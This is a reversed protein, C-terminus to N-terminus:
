QEITEDVTLSHRYADETALYPLSCLTEILAPDRKFHFGTKIFSQM